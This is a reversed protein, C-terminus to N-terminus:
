GSAQEEKLLAIAQEKTVDLSAMVDNIEAETFEPEPEAPAAVEAKAAPAAPAAPAPAEGEAAAPPTYPRAEALPIEHKLGRMWRSIQDHQEPTLWVGFRTNDSWRTFNVVTRKVRETVEKGDVTRTQDFERRGLSLMVGRGKVNVTDSKEIYYFSPTPTFIEGNDRRFRLGVDRIVRQAFSIGMEKSLNSFHAARVDEVTKLKEIQEKTIQPM